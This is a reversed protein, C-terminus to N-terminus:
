EKDINELNYEYKKAFEELASRLNKEDVIDNSFPIHIIHTSEDFGASQVGSFNGFFDEVEKWTETRPNTVVAYLSLISM